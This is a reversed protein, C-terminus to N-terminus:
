ETLEKLRNFFDGAQPFSYRYEIEGKWGEHFVSVDFSILLINENELKVDLEKMLKDDLPIGIIERFYSFGLFHKKTIVLSGSFWNRRFSYRRGPARFNRFTVRGSIGEDILVIGEEKIIPLYKAPIKGLGFLRYLISKSM